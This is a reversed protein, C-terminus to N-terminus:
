LDAKVAFHHRLWFTKLWSHCVAPHTSDSATLSTYDANIARTGTSTATTTTLLKECVIGDEEIRLIIGEVEGLDLQQLEWHLLKFPRLLAICM